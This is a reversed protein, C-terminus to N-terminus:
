KCPLVERLFIVDAGNAGYISTWNWLLWINHHVFYAQKYYHFISLATSMERLLLQKNYSNLTYIINDIQNLECVMWLAEFLCYSSQVSVFTYDFEALDICTYTHTATLHQQTLSLVAPIYLFLWVCGTKWGVAVTWMVRCIIIYKLVIIQFWNQCFTTLPM